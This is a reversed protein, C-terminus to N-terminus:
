QVMRETIHFKRQAATSDYIEKLVVVQYTKGTKIATVYLFYTTDNNIDVGIEKKYIVGGYNIMRVEPDDCSFLALFCFLIILAKM